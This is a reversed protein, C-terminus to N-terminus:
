PAALEARVTPMWMVVTGRGAVIFRRVTAYFWVCALSERGEAWEHTDESVSSGLLGGHHGANLHLSVYSGHALCQTIRYLLACLLGHLLLAMECEGDRAPLLVLGWCGSEGLSWGRQPAWVQPPPSQLVFARHVWEGLPM